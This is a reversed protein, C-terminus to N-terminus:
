DHPNSKVQKTTRARETETVGGSTSQSKTTAPKPKPKGAAAPKASGGGAPKSQGNTGGQQQQMAAMEEPSPDGVNHGLIGREENAATDSLINQWLSLHSQAASQAKQKELDRHMQETAEKDIDKQETEFNYSTVSFEKAALEACRSNKFWKNERMTTLAQIAAMREVANIAPFSFEVSDDLMEGTQDYHWRSLRDYFAHLAEDWVSQREFFFKTSPETETLVAARNSSMAGILYSPPIGAGMAILNMLGMMDSDSGAGTGGVPPNPARVINKNHFYSSGPTPIINKYANAITEVTAPSGDITYDWTYCAQFYAKIVNANVLDKLRKLWGIISALDSRGRKENEYTNIKIHLVQNAPIDRVIFMTSPINGKVFQQLATSFQQHYFKVDDMDEPDTVVDLITASDIYKIKLGERTPMFQWLMEGDVSLQNSWMRLRSGARTLGVNMSTGLKNLSAFDSWVKRTKDSKCVMTVGKGLTFQTIINPIRHGVPNNNFAEYCKSKLELMKYMYQNRYYPGMFLPTFNSFPESGTLVDSDSPFSEERLLSGYKMALAEKLTLKNTPSAEIIPASQLRQFLGVKDYSKLIYRGTRDCEIIQADVLKKPDRQIAALDFSAPHWADSMVPIPTEPDVSLVDNLSTTPRLMAHGPYDKSNRSLGTSSRSDLSQEAV